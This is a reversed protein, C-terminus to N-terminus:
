PSKSKFSINYDEEDVQAYYLIYEYMKEVIVEEAMNGFLDDEYINNWYFGVNTFSLKKNISENKNNPDARNIFTKESWENNMTIIDISGITIGWAFSPKTSTEFRFHINKISIEVNDLIVALLKEINGKTAIAEGYM